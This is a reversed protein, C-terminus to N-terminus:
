AQHPWFANWVFAVFLTRVDYTYLCTSCTLFGETFDEYNINVTEVLTSSMILKEGLQSNMVCARLIQNDTKLENM